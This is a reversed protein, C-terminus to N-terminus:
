NVDFTLEDLLVQLRHKVAERTLVSYDERQDSEYAIAAVIVAVDGHAIRVLERYSAGGCALHHVVRGRARVEDWDAPLDTDTPSLRMLTM